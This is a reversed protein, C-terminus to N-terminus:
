QLLIAILQLVILQERDRPIYYITYHIIYIPVGARRCSLMIMILFREIKGEKLKKGKKSREATIRKKRSNKV